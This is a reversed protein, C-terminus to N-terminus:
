LDTIVVLQCLFKYMLIKYLNYLNIPFKVYKKRTRGTVKYAIVAYNNNLLFIYFETGDRFIYVMSSFTPGDNLMLLQAM